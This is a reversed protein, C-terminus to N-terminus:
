NLAKKVIEIRNYILTNQPVDKTVVTNAAIVVNDGIRVNKLIIVNSGIWCNNGIEIFGYNYNQEKFPKENLKFQHDSDNLQVNEGFITNNGIKISKLCNISCRNNFFVGNGIRLKAKKGVILSFGKKVSFRKGIKINKQLIYKMPFLWFYIRIINHLKLFFRQILNM